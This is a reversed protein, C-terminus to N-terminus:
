KRGILAVFLFLVIMVVAITLMSGSIGTSLAGAAMQSPSINAIGAVNGNQGILSPYQGAAIQKSALDAATKTKYIDTGIGAGMTVLQQWLPIEEDSGGSSKVGTLGPMSFGTGISKVGSGLWGAIDFM